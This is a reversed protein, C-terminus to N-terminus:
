ENWPSKKEVVNAANETTEMYDRCSFSSDKEAAAIVAVAAATVAAMGTELVDAVVVVKKVVDIVTVIIAVAVIDAIGTEEILM